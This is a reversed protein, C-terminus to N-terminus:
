KPENKFARRMMPCYTCNVQVIHFSVHESRDNPIIDRAHALKCERDSLQSSEFRQSASSFDEAELMM